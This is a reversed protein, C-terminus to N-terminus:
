KCVATREKAYRGRAPRKMQMVDGNMDKIQMGGREPRTLGNAYGQPSSPRKMQMVGCKCIAGGGVEMPM